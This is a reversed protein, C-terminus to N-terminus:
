RTRWVLSTYLGTLVLNVIRDRRTRLRLDASSGTFSLPLRRAGKM